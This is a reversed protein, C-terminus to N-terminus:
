RECNLESKMTVEAVLVDYLNDESRVFIIIKKKVNGREEFMVFISQVKKGFRKAGRPVHYEDLLQHFEDSTLGQANHHSYTFKSTYLQLSSLKKIYEECARLANKDFLHDSEGQKSLAM